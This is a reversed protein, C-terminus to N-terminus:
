DQSFNSTAKSYNNFKESISNYIRIITEVFKETADYGTYTNYQSTILDTYDSKIYIGYSIEEQESIRNSYSQRNSPSATQLKINIAEFDAYIAVPLRSKFHHKEFKLIRNDPM